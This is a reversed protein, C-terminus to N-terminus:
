NYPLDDGRSSFPRRVKGRGGRRAERLRSSVNTVEHVGNRCSVKQEPMAVERGREDERGGRGGRRRRGGSWRTKRTTLGTLTLIRVCLRTMLTM